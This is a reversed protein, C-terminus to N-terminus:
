YHTQVGFLSLFNIQGNLLLLLLLIWVNAYLVQSIISPVSAKSFLWGAVFVGILLMFMQWLVSFSYVPGANMWMFSLVLIEIIALLLGYLFMSYTGGQQLYEKNHKFSKFALVVGLILLPLFIMGM